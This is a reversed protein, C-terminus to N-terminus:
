RRSWIANSVSATRTTTRTATSLRDHIEDARKADIPTASAPRLLHYAQFWGDKAWPPAPWANFDVGADRKLADVAVERVGVDWAVGDSREDAPSCGTAKPVSMCRRYRQRRRPAAAATLVTDVHDLYDAHYPTIPYPTRWSTRPRRWCPFRRRWSAAARTVAPWARGIASQHPAAIFSRLSVVSKLHSAATAAFRPTAGLYAHLPDKANGFERAAADPDLPEIRIEQPYFSPYYPVEHGAQAAPATACLLRAAM